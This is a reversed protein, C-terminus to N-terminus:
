KASLCLVSLIIIRWQNKECEPVRNIRGMLSKLLDTDNFNAVTACPNRGSWMTANVTRVSTTQVNQFWGIVGWQLMFRLVKVVGIVMSGRNVLWLKRNGVGIRVGINRGIEVTCM